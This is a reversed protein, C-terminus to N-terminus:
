FILNAIGNEVKLINYNNSYARFLASNEYSIKSSLTLDIEIEIKNLNSTGSPQYSDPTLSFTFINIGEVILGKHFLITNLYNYLYKDFSESITQGNFLIQTKEIINNGLYNINDTYNFLEKIHGNKIKDFQCIWVIEKSLNNFNLKFKSHTNNIIRENFLNQNIILYEHSNKIFYNREVDDLYILDCLLYSNNLTIIPYSIDYSIEKSIPIVYLDDKNYIKYSSKSYKSSNTYYDLAENYKTYYLKRTTYDFYEFIISTEKGSINQTLIEKETFPVVYEEIEIYHTPSKILVNELTNFQINFKIECNKLAVIPLTLNENSFYFNLPIYLNYSSKGNTSNYLEPVNGVVINHSISQSSKCSLESWIYLWEGYLKNIVIDNIELEVYDILGYGINKIWKFKPIEKSNDYTKPLDPLEIYLYTNLLLDTTKTFLCTVKEGFNANSNFLQIKTEKSFNTYHKYVLKFFTIEPDFNLYLNQADQAVLQILGGTM